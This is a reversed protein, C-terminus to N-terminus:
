AQVHPPQELYRVLPDTLGAKELSRRQPATVARLEMQGGRRKIKRALLELSRAGSSDLYTLDSLDLIFHAPREAIQDLAAGVQAAAGFFYPGSLRVVVTDGREADSEASHDIRTGQSMRHIFVLGGLAFGVLIGQTLDQFVVLLFTVVVVVADSRSTQVLIRFQARAAMNWAVVTLLGAFVAMPVFSVWSALVMMFGLVIVAHLMGAVPGKAGASHNTVTRAVAGTAVVGGFLAVAMNAAGEALLEIAPRHRNGSLGDAVQASLLGTIASLLSFQLAFPLAQTIMAWSFDPLVPAPLFHPLAGFRDGVLQVPLDLAWVLGSGAVVVILMNPWRPRYHKIVQLTVIATLAVGFAIPTFSDRAAWLVALKNLVAPPEPATLTLGLLEKLQSIFIIVGIGSTFGITVPYPLFKIYNGLRLAGAIILVIGSLFMAVMLGAVGIQTVCASVAVIMAGAPGGIQYRSGGLLSILFGGVITTYLGAEPGMGSAIAIAMSLPLAVIAVNLGAIADARLAALSYGERSVTVIKPLFESAETPNPM